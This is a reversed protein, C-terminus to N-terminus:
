HKLRNLISKVEKKNEFTFDLRVHTIGMERYTKISSIEDRIQYDYLRMHCSADNHMPYRNSFKDQLAYTCKRCLKCDKKDNDLLAANIPCHESVMVEVRGYIVKALNPMHDYLQQYTKILKMSHSVDLEHSLTILTAGQQHLFHACQANFVNLSTDCEFHELAHIGGVDQIMDCDYNGKEIRSSIKKIRADEQYKRYLADDEVYICNIDSILCAILQEENLVKADVVFDDVVVDQKKIPMERYQRHMTNARIEYLKALGERRLANMEKISIFVDNAMEFHIDQIEFITDKTKNLQKILTEKSTPHTLAQQLITGQMTITHTEDTFVIQLPSNVRAYVTAQIPVKRLMQDKQDLQKELEVDSTKVVKAGKKFAGRCEIEVIDNTFAQNVLLHNLYMRNVMFGIDEQDMLVRVGDHQHLTDELKVVIRNKKLGIIKGIPVGMHNPRIPHYLNSGHQSYLLGTTYGRNFIKKANQLEEESIRYNSNDIAKRYLSTIYGVYEKKKMRGEIKFSSVGADMLESIHDITNLDKLSLLYCDEKVVKGDAFNTLAYPMRCSQACEGRNGSRGGVMYSFLCQGSYSVCLAGHVFVELEIDHKAFRKIEEITVERALVARPIGIHKLFALAHENIIHMQTSAHVEFDPYTERLYAVVGLDQVILADVHHKYLFAIYEFCADMEEDHILTNLTVYVKVGYAHAYLVIDILQKFEFNDAYARAGFRHGALYIADCGNQIAVIARDYSGAPSLLEVSKMSDRMELMNYLFALLLFLSAVFQMGIWNFDLYNKWM